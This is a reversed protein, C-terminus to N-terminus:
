AALQGRTANPGFMMRATIVDMNGTEDIAVDVLFHSTEPYWFGVPESYGAIREETKLRELFSVISSIFGKQNKTTALSKHYPLALAIIERTLFDNMRRTAIKTEADAMIGAHWSPKLGGGNPAYEMVPMFIGADEHDQRTPAVALAEVGVMRYTTVIDHPTAPNVEPRENAIRFASLVHSPMTAVHNVFGADALAAADERFQRQIGPHCFVSVTRDLTARGVGNAGSGQANAATTGGPPAVVALRPYGAARATAAHTALDDSIDAETRDCVIIDAEMGAETSLAFGLAAAYRAAVATADVLDPVTTDATSVTVNADAPTDVLVTVTNLAVPAEGSGSVQRVRVTKEGTEAATWSIDELTALTYGGAAAIRHGAKLTFAGYAASARTFSVPLDAGSDQIGLDPVLLAVKPADLGRCLAYLNGNYFRDPGGTGTGSMGDGLWSKFGGWAILDNVGNPLAVPTNVQGRDNVVAGVLLIAGRDRVKRAQAVIQAIVNIQTYAVLTAEGPDADYVNVIPM